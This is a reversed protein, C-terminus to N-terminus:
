FMWGEQNMPDSDGYIKHKETRARGVVAQQRAFYFSKNGFIRSLRSIKRTSCMREKSNPGQM